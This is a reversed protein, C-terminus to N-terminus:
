LEPYAKEMLKNIRAREFTRRRSKAYERLDGRQKAKERERRQKLMMSGAAAAGAAGAALLVASAIKAAKLLKKKNMAM